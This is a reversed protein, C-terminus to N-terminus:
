ADAKASACPRRLPASNPCSALTAQEGCFYTGEDGEGGHDSAAARRRREDKMWGARDVCPTISPQDGVALPCGRGAGARDEEPLGTSPFPRRERGAPPATRKLSPAQVLDRERAAPEGPHALLELGVAHAHLRLEDDLVAGRFRPLDGRGVVVAPEAAPQERKGATAVRQGEAPLVGEVLVVLIVDVPDGLRATRTRARELLAAQQRVWRLRREACVRPKRASDHM